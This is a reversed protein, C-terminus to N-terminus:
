AAANLRGTPIAAHAVALRLVDLLLLLFFVDLLPEFALVGLEQVLKTRENGAGLHEEAEQECDGERTLERVQVVRLAVDVVSREHARGDREDQVERGRRVM